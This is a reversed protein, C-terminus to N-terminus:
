LYQLPLPLYDKSTAGTINSWAGYTNPRSNVISQSQWQYTISTLQFNTIDPSLKDISPTTGIIISPKEIQKLTTNEALIQDCCIINNDSVKRLIIKLLNSVRRINQYVAIRRFLLFNGDKTSINELKSYGLTATNENEITIWNRNSISGKIDTKAYQWEFKEIQAIIDGRQQPVYNPNALINLNVVAGREGTIQKPNTDIIKIFGETNLGAESVSIANNLIPSPIVTITVTNSKNTLSTTSNYGLSRTITINKPETTYDFNLTKNIKDIEFQTSSSISWSSNIGYSLNEYPNAYQSGIITAPKDGLRVTQNCCLTNVINAPNPADTPIGGGTTSSKIISINGSKYKTGSYSKYETYLFGGTLGFQAADLTINFSRTVTLGGYFLLNGGNGGNAIIVPSSSNKQYYVAITGPYTDNQVTPIVVKAVLNVNSISYTGLNITAGPNISSNNVVLSGDITTTQSFSAINLFLTM